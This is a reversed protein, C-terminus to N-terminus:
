DQNFPCNQPPDANGLPKVAEKRGEKPPEAQAERYGWVM